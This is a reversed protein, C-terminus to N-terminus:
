LRFVKGPTMASLRQEGRILPPQWPNEEGNELLCRLLADSQSRQEGRILPPQWLNEEGNELLCRLLADSQSRQEGRIL